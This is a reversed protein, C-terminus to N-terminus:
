SQGEMREHLTATVDGRAAVEARGAAVVAQEAITAREQWWNKLSRLTTNHARAARLAADKKRGWMWWAAVNVSAIAVLAFVILAGM